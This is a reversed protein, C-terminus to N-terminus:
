AIQAAAAGSEGSALGFPTKDVVSRVHQPPSASAAPSPIQGALEGVRQRQQQPGRGTEGPHDADDRDRDRDDDDDQDVRREREGLFPVGLLRHLCQGGIQRYSRLDHTVALDGLDLRGTDHWSIDKDDGFAVADARVRAQEGATDLHIQRFQGPFRHRDVAAGVSDIGPHRQRLCAFQDEAAGGAGLALCAGDNEGGSHVGFEAADGRQRFTDLSVLTREFM